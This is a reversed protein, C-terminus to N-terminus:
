VRSRIAKRRVQRARRVLAYGKTLARDRAVDRHLLRGRLLREFEEIGTGRRVTVRRLAYPGQRRRALANGVALAQAWGTERVAARVRRSSYGYPYAFSAPATGLEAGVIERCRRLEHRLPDDGLQDLQPHTHSHGGIEVGAAALERVQDWDLMLDPGGGTHHAGRIWGTSVFLTAPYGHRALAPLAHRHVGEYGDDFTILLPRAPLPRGDRWSRALDATNVPTMGLDAIIGLHRAFAEPTVSLARTAHNPTTAVAHYMLIPVATDDAM